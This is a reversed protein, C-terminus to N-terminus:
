TIKYMEGTLYYSISKINVGNIYSLRVIDQIIAGENAAVICYVGICNTGNFMFSTNKVEIYHDIVSNHYHLDINSCYKAPAM